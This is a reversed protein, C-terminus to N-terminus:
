VVCDLRDSRVTALHRKTKPLRVRYFLNGNAAWCSKERDIGTVKVRVGNYKASDGKNFKRSTSM